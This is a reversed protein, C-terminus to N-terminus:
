FGVEAEQKLQEQREAEREAEKRLAQREAVVDEYDNPKAPDYEDTLHGGLSFQSASSSPLAKTDVGDGASGAKRKQVKSIKM